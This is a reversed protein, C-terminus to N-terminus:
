IKTGIGPNSGRLHCAVCLKRETHCKACGTSGEAEVTARHTQVYDAPHQIKHCRQCFTKKNHCTSCPTEGRSKVALSHQYPSWDPGHSPPIRRHCEKCFDKPKSHCTMCETKQQMALKGHAGVWEKDHNDPPGKESHCLDCRNSIRVGDHCRYCIEMAPLNKGSGARNHVLNIHCDSCSIGKLVLHKPHSIILDGSPTIDREAIHCTLCTKGSRSVLAPGPKGITKGAFLHAFAHQVADVRMRVASGLGQEVHCTLCNVDAHTSTVWSDYYPKIEHCGNCFSPRATVYGILGLFIAFIFVVGIARYWFELRM